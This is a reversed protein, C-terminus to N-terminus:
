YIFLQGMIRLLGQVLLSGTPSENGILSTLLRTGSPTGFPASQIDLLDGANVSVFGTMSCFRSATGTTGTLECTLSTPSGNDMLTLVYGKAVGVTGSDAYVSLYTINM